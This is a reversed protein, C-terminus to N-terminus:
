QGGRPLCFPQMRRQWGEQGGYRIIGRLFYSLILTLLITLTRLDRDHRMGAEIVRRAEDTMHPPPVSRLFVQTNPHGDMEFGAPLAEALTGESKTSFYYTPKGTKTTGQHLYYTHEKANTYTIPM